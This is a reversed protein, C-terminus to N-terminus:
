NNIRPALLFSVQVQATVKMTGPMTGSKSEAAMMRMAAFNHPASAGQEVVSYVGVIDQNLQEALMEAKDRANSVASQLAQTKLADRQTSFFAFQNIRDIGRSLLGDLILDYKSIDLGTIRVERSLVVGNQRRGQPSSEYHPFLNIQLSQIAKEDIGQATLFSVIATLRAQLSKNLKSVVPGKEELIVSLEFADPVTQRDASGSVTITRINSDDAFAPLSISATFLAFTFLVSTIHKKM